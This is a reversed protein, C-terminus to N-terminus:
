RSAAWRIPTRSAGSRREPRSRGSASRGIMRRPSSRRAMLLFSSITLPTGTAPSGTSHKAARRMWSGYRGSTRPTRISSPWRKATPSLALAPFRGAQFQHLHRGTPADWLEIDGESMSLAVTRCDPTFAISQFQQGRPDGFHLLHRGTAADWLHIGHWDASLLTKGDPLFGLNRVQDGHRLRVTGLRALAGPPLPDGLPDTRPREPARPATLIAYTRAAPPKQTAAPPQGTAAWPLALGAAGLTGLGLVLALVLKLRALSTARLVTEALSVATVSVGGTAAKGAVGVVTAILATSPTARAPVAAALLTASLTFGRRTLRIRLLARGRQLRRELTRLACGLQQAAQDRTRGELYCLLLPGRYAEPLRNLEEDLAACLERAALDAPPTVPPHLEEQTERRARRAAEARARLATRYAVGYLWGALREGQAIRAAKRALVLFTAQFADEAAHADHLVRRCVHLVMSGHRRVLAEFAAEDRAAVFRELLLRDPVPPDFRGALLQGLTRLASASAEAM